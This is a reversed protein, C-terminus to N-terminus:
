NNEKVIDKAITELSSALIRVVAAIDRLQQAVKIRRIHAGHKFHEGRHLDPDSEYTLCEVYSTLVKTISDRHLTALGVALTLSTTNHESSM